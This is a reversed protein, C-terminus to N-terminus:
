ETLQMTLMNPLRIVIETGVEFVSTLEIEGGLREVANKAVYLGLGSGNSAESARFFMEFVRDQLAPDIGIGNDKFTIIAFQSNVQVNITLRCSKTRDFYQFANTLLNRFIITLRDVDTHFPVQENVLRECKVVRSGELYGLGDCIRDLLLQFDIKEPIVDLKNNRSYNIVNTVFNDLKRVSSDIHSFYLQDKPSERKMLNMVGMISLVPARLDHSASYVFKDLESNLKILESMQARQLREDAVKQTIDEMSITLGIVHDGSLVPIIRTECTVENGGVNVHDLFSTTERSIMAVNFRDQWTQRLGSAEPLLEIFSKSPILSISYSNLFYSFTSDNFDIVEFKDNVLWISAHLSNIITRLNAEHILIKNQFLKNASINRTYISVFQEGGLRVSKYYVKWAIQRGNSEFEEEDSISLGKLAATCRGMWRDAVDPTVQQMIKFLNEGKGIHIDHADRFAWYFGQNFSIITFNNDLILVNSEANEIISEYFNSLSTNELSIM